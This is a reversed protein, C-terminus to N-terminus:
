SPTWQRVLTLLQNVSQELKEKLRPEPTCHSLVYYATRVVERWRPNKPLKQVTLYREMSRVRLRGGDIHVSWIRSEEALEIKTKQTTREWCELANLMVDVLAQRFPEHSEDKEISLPLPALDADATNLELQRYHELTEQNKVALQQAEQTTKQLIRIRERLGLAFLLVEGIFVIYIGNLTFFTAPLLGRRQLVLVSLGLLFAAWAWMFYRAHPYGKKWCHFGVLLISVSVTLVLVPLVKSYLTHSILAFGMMLVVCGKLLSLTKHWRPVVSKTNLASQFFTLIWFFTLAGLFPISRETWWPLHPWLYEVALGKFSLATVGGTSLYLVYYLYSLDRFTMFLLFSYLIILGITGLYIGLIVFETRVKQAFALPEWLVLSFQMIGKTLLRLYITQSQSANLPIRFILNPHAVERQEFPIQIGAKKVVEQGERDVLYVEALGMLPAELELLWEMQHAIQNQLSLRVWYASHTFGFSPTRNLHPVFRTSGELSQVDQLTQQQTPDELIDIHDGLAYQGQKETLLVPSAAQAVNGGLVGLLAWLLGTQLWKKLRM